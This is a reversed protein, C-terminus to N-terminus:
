QQEQRGHQRSDGRGIGLFGPGLSGNRLHHCWARAQVLQRLGSRARYGAPGGLEAAGHEGFVEAVLEEGLDVLWISSGQFIFPASAIHRGDPSLVFETIYGEEETVPAPEAM